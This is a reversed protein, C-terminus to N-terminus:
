FYFPTSPLICGVLLMVQYMITRQQFRGQQPDGQVIALARAWSSPAPFARAQLDIPGQQDTIMKKAKWVCHSSSDISKSYRALQDRPPAKLLKAGIVRPIGYTEFRFSISLRVPHIRVRPPLPHHASRQQELLGWLQRWGRTHQPQLLM